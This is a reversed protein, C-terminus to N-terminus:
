TPWGTSRQLVRSRARSGGRTPWERSPGCVSMSRASNFRLSLVFNDQLKTNGSKLDQQYRRVAELFRDYLHQLCVTWVDENENKLVPATDRGEAPCGSAFRLVKGAQDDKEKIYLGFSHMMANRVEWLTEAAETSGMYTEAFSEFRARIAGMSKENRQTSGGDDNGAYFKALLDIGAFIVMTSAFLRRYWDPHAVAGDEGKGFRKPGVLCELAEQRLM